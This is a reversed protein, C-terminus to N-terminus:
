GLDDRRTESLIILKLITLHALLQLKKIEYDANRSRIRYKKRLNVSEIFETKRVNIAGSHLRVVGGDLFKESV